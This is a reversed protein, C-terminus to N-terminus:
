PNKALTTTAFRPVLFPGLILYDLSSNEFAQLAEEPSSVIPEEHMNFSTNVLVSHGTLAHYESLIDYYGPNVHREIIQPRMTGDLHVCAPAERKCAESAYFTITMFRATYATANGYGAIMRAADVDRLVPAFPMFESRGLQANLWDNATKDTARYLISRNGLARPGYEAPGDCRALINGKALLEAARGAMNIPRDFTIGRRRVIREIESEQWSPGLYLDTLRTPTSQGQALFAAGLPLGGDGMHPFVFFSTLGSAEAMRQNARVNAHVGGSVAVDRLGTRDCYWRLQATLLEETLRQIGAAVDERKAGKLRERLWNQARRFLGIKVEYRGLKDNWGIAERFVKYTARWDGSAALGTIKGAHWIRRFGCVDTAYGYLIGLSNYFSNASLERLQGNIGVAVKACLGDGFGDNSFIL